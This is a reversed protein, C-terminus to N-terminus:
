HLSESISKYKSLPSGESKQFLGYYHVKPPLASAYATIALFVFVALAKM